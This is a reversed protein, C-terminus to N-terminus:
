IKVMPATIPNMEAKFCWPTEWYGPHRLAIGASRLYTGATDRRVGATEDTRRL